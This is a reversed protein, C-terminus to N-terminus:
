RYVETGNSTAQALYILVSRMDPKNRVKEHEDLARRRITSICQTVLIIACIAPEGAYIRLWKKHLSCLDYLPQGTFLSSLQDLTQRYYYFMETSSPLVLVPPGSDDVSTRTSAAELSSRSKSGRYQALMDSLARSQTLRVSRTTSLLFVSKDQADIYVGM